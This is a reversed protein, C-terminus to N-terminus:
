WRPDQRSQLDHRATMGAPWPLAAAEIGAAALQHPWCPWLTGCEGCIGPNSGEIPQHDLRVHEANIWLLPDPIGDPATLQRPSNGGDHLRSTQITPGTM